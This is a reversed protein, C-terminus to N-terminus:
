EGSFYRPKPRISGGASRYVGAGSFLDDLVPGAIESGEIRGDGDVAADFAHPQNSRLFVRVIIAGMVM